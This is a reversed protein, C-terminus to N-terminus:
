KDTIAGSPLENNINEEDVTVGSLKKNSIRWTQESPLSVTTPEVTTIM